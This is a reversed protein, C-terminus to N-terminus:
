RCVSVLFSMAPNEFPLAREGSLRYLGPSSCVKVHQNTLAFPAREHQNEDGPFKVASSVLRPMKCFRASRANHQSGQAQFTRSGMGASRIRRGPRVDVSDRAVGARDGMGRQIRIAAGSPIICMIFHGLLRVTCANIKRKREKKEKTM